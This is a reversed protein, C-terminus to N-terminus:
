EWSEQVFDKINEDCEPCLIEQTDGISLDDYEDELVGSEKVGVVQSCLSIVFVTDIVENCKPCKM